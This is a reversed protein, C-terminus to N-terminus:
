LKPKGTGYPVAKVSWGEGRVTGTENGRLRSHITSRSRSDALGEQGAMYCKGAGMQADIFNCRNLLLLENKPSDEEM